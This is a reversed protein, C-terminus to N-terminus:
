TTRGLAESIRLYLARSIADANANGDIKFVREGEDRAVNQFGQRVREHFAAGQQEYRDSVGKRAKVRKRATEPDVELLFTLDPECDILARMRSIFELTKPDGRGIGYGQYAISSHHFRDCLVIQGRKLAPKIVTDVHDARAAMHILTESRPSFTVDGFLLVDRLLEASKTGGPERTVLPTVGREVLQRAVLGLQTTKGSGEGGEFTVFLGRM